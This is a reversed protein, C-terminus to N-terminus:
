REDNDRKRGSTVSAPRPGLALRLTKRTFSSVGVEALAEPALWRRTGQGDRARRSAAKARFVEATVDRHTFVHRVTGRAVLRGARVGIEHVAARAAREAAADSGRGDDSGRENDPDIEIIPLAWTGALLGSQRRVLLVRGAGDVCACCAVRVVKKGRKPTRVPLRAAEGAAHARCKRALPCADCRPARPTCVTAGLEMVAQNFDGARAAPVEALGRARLAERTAPRDISAHEGWLRATVRAGNGDLAFTRAGFAIAAVAAATYPGVGPLARLAEEEAPLEGAHREVVARAAAHLHRARAYYGLGSWAATVEDESAAALAAVDPFRELFREFYPVVTAVVTQQLMLESVLTKYPSPARRWPLDRQARDYWALLPRALGLKVNPEDGVRKAASV